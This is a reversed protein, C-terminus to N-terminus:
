LNNFIVTCIIAIILYILSAIYWPIFLFKNKRRREAKSDRYEIVDNYKRVPDKKGINRVLNASAYGILDFAGFNSLIIFTGVGFYVAFIGFGIDALGAVTKNVLFYYLLFLPVAALLLGVCLCVKRFLSSEEFLERIKM